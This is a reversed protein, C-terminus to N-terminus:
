MTRHRKAPATNNFTATRIADQHLQERKRYDNYLQDQRMKRRAMSQPSAAGTKEEVPLPRAANTRSRLAGPSAAGTRDALAKPSAAGTKDALAYPSAAGTRNELARPSAAGTREAMAKPSAAGTRDGLAKPSAAGTRSVSAEKLVNTGGPFQSLDQTRKRAVMPVNFVEAVREAGARKYIEQAAPLYEQIKEPTFPSNPNSYFSTVALANSTRQTERLMDQTNGGKAIREMALLDQSKQLNNVTQTDTVAGWGSFEFRDPFPDILALKGEKNMLINAPKIDAHALGKKHLTDVADWLDSVQKKTFGGQMPVMKSATDFGELAEFYMVPIERGKKVVKGRGYPTPGISSQIARLGKIEGEMLEEPSAKGVSESYSKRAYRFKKGSIETELLEVSGIGGEGLKNVVKGRALAEQFEESRLVKKFAKGRAVTKQGAKVANSFLVSALRRAPDWGTGFDTTEKRLTGAMGFSTFSELVKPHNKRRRSGHPSSNAFDNYNRGFKAVSSEVQSPSLTPLSGINTKGKSSPVITDALPDGMTKSFASVPADLTSALENISHPRNGGASLTDQLGISKSGRVGMDPLLTKLKGIDGGPAMTKLSGIDQGGPAMTKLSGIDGGPAMTSLRGIDQGGPAMTSLRGIDEGGPAMTSLRGIDEGGPAMTSLRGIDEGGPAMTSLRGIDEGGPAM